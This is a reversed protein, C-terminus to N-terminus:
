YCFETKFSNRSGKEWIEERMSLNSCWNSVRSTWVAWISSVMLLVVVSVVGCTCKVARITRTTQCHARLVFVNVTFRIHTESDLPSTSAHFPQHLLTLKWNKTRLKTFHYFLCNWGFYYNCGWIILYFNLKSIIAVTNYLIIYAFINWQLRHTINLNSRFMSSGWPCVPDTPVLTAEASCTSAKWSRRTKFDTCM